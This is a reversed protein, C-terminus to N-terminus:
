SIFPMFIPELHYGFFHLGFQYHTHLGTFGIFFNILWMLHSRNAYRIPLYLMSGQMFYFVDSLVLHIPSYKYALTMGFTAVALIVMWVFCKPDQENRQYSRHQYLSLFLRNFIGKIQRRDILIADIGQKHGIRRNEM